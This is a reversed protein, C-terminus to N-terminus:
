GSIEGLGLDRRTRQLAQSYAAIVLLLDMLLLTYFIATAAKAVLLGELLFLLAVLVPLRSGSAARQLRMWEAYWAVLGVLLLSEGINIVLTAGSPLSFRYLVTELAFGSVTQEAFVIANYIFFLYLFLPIRVMQKM